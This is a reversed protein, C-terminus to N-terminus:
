SIRAALVGADTRRELLQGFVFGSSQPHVQAGANFDGSLVAFSKKEKKMVRTIDDRTLFNSDGACVIGKTMGVIHSFVDIATDRDLHYLLNLCVVANYPKPPRHARVDEAPLFNIRKMIEPAIDVMGDDKRETYYAEYGEPMYGYQMYPYSGQAALAVLGESIDLANLRLGPHRAFVGKKDAVMAFTIPECGVSCPAFLINSVSGEPQRLMYEALTDMLRPYRFFFTTDDFRPPYVDRSCYNPNTIATFRAAFEQRNM